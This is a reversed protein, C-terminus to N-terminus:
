LELEYHTNRGDGSAKLAGMGLLNQLDRTATAKSTKTIAIYKKASMGGTFGSPGAQFMRELAKRQRDNLEAGHRQYFKAKKLTFHIEQEASQQAHLITEVFYNIWPTIANSRQAKELADYYSKKKRNISRSLSFLVPSEQGQSLAKEAIARGIRGNGDEFPHISEFYLHAIASRIAGPLDGRSDNFWSIFQKMESPVLESPPAEFHITPNRIRGSIVQMPTTGSRWEGLPLNKVGRLLMSHWNLLMSESLPKDFQHRALVILEGIGAARLDTVQDPVVNLGLNNKISSKVEDRELLEGEIDSTEIAEAILLDLVTEAELGDPIGEILGSVRGELSHIQSLARGIESLDYTFNPWDDQQWNYRM